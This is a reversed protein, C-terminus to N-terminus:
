QSIMWDILEKEKYINVVTGHGDNPSPLAFFQANGGANNIQKIFSENCSRYHGERAGIYSRIPINTYSNVGHGPCGSVPVLASFYGPHRAVMNWAGNGGLSHGTIIIKKRDIQYETVKQEILDMVKKDVSGWDSSTNPALFVANYDKYLGEKMNKPFSVTVMANLSGREGSGHLFIILAMNTTPKDPVYEWYKLGDSTQGQKMGPAVSLPTGSGASSEKRKREEEAKKENEQRAKERADAVRQREEEAAQKEEDRKLQETKEQAEEALKYTEIDEKNANNWCEGDQVKTGSIFSIVLSALLPLFFIAVVAVVKSTISKIHNNITETKGVVIKFLELSLSIILILPVVLSVIEIVSKIFLITGLFSSQECVNLIM